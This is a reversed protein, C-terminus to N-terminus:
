SEDIFKKLKEWQQKRLVLEENSDIIEKALVLAEDASQKDDNDIAKAKRMYAGTLWVDTEYRREMKSFIEIAENMHMLGNEKYGSLYEAEGIHSLIEAKLSEKNFEQTEHVRESLSNLAKNFSEIAEKYEELELHAKGLDRYQVVLTSLKNAEAIEVASKAAYKALILYSKENTKQYLHKLANFRSCQVESLGYYDKEEAYQITAEDCLNLSKLFNQTNEREKEALVHIERAKTM